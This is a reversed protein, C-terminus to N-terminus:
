RLGNMSKSIARELDMQSEMRLAEGKHERHLKNLAKYRSEMLQFTKDRAMPIFAPIWGFGFGVAAGLGIGILLKETINSSDQILLVGAVGGIAICILSFILLFIGYVKIGAVGRLSKQYRSADYVERRSNYAYDSEPLAQPALPRGEAMLNRTGSTQVWGHILKNNDILVGELWDASMDRGLVILTNGNKVQHHPKTMIFPIKYLGQQSGEGHITVTIANDPITFM